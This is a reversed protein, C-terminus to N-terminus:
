ILNRIARGLILSFIDMGKNFELFPSKGLEKYIEIGDRYITFGDKTDKKNCSVLVLSHSELKFM